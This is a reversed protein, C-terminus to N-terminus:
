AKPKVLRWQMNAQEEQKFSQGPMLDGKRLFIGQEGSLQECAWYGTQPCPDGVKITASNANREYAALVGNRFKVSDLLQNWISFIEPESRRTGDTLQARIYMVVNTTARKLNSGEGGYSWGCVYYDVNDPRINDEVSEKPIFWCGEKGTMGDQTRPKSFVERGGHSHLTQRLEKQFQKEDDGGGNKSPQLYDITVSAEVSPSVMDYFITPYESANRVMVPGVCLQNVQPKGNFVELSDIFPQINSKRQPTLGATMPIQNTEVYRKAEPSYLFLQSYLYAYTSSDPHDGVKQTGIIMRKNPSYETYSYLANTMPLDAYDNNNKPYRFKDQYGDKNRAVEEATFKRNQFVRALGKVSNDFEAATAMDKGKFRHGMYSTEITGRDPNMDAPIDIQLYGVCLPKSTFPKNMTITPNSTPNPISDTGPAANANLSLASCLLVTSFRFIFTHPNM